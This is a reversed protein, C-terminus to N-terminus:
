AHSAIAMTLMLAWCAGVCATAYRVASRICAKGAKWGDPPISSTRHCARLSRQKWPVCEWAAAVFLAGIVPWRSPAPGWVWRAASVAIIGFIAWVCLYTGVFVAGIQHRRNWRASLEVHRVMPMVPPLMMAGVMLLWVAQRSTWGLDASSMTVKAIVMDPMGGLPMSRIVVADHGHLDFLGWSSHHLIVMLFWSAAAVVGVPWEPHFWRFRTLTAFLRMQPRGDSAVLSM